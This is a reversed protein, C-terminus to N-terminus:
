RVFQFEPLLLIMWLFDEIAHVSPTPGLEAVLISKEDATPPRTLARRYIEEIMAGTEPRTAALSAAGQKLLSALQNGNALDIAELTTVTDPRMSVIQERNPRGLARM